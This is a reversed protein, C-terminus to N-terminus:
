ARRRRPVARVAVLGLRRARRASWRTWRRRATACTPGRPATSRGARGLAVVPTALQLALWQWNDFQLPPIMSLAPRAPEAAGLLILRTRLPALEAAADASPTPADDAGDARRAADSTARPRCPPSSSSPSWPAPISTSRRRSPPTTSRRPRRRRAQQARARHPQRVLRLDHGQDAARRSRDRREDAAVEQTFAATHVRGEHPVAPVPPLPRGVPLDRRVRHARRRRRGAPPRPPLRPRGRAARRPPRPRRPLAARRGPRRRPPGHLRLTPRAAPRPAADRALRSTTATSACPPRPRGAAGRARVRRRGPRRRRADDGDGGARRFDAFVRYAGAERSRSDASWAGDAAQRPHLHQFGTLDRRVVILHM